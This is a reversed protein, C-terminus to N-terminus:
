AVACIPRWTVTPLKLSKGKGIVHLLAVRANGAVHWGKGTILENLGKIICKHSSALPQYREIHLFHQKQQSMWNCYFGWLAGLFKDVVHVIAVKSIPQAIHEILNLM